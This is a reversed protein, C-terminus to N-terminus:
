MMGPKPTEEEEKRKYKICFKGFGSILIDEANQLASKIIELPTEVM